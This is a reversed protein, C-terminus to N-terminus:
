PDAACLGDRIDGPVPLPSFVIQPSYAADVTANVNLRSTVDAGFDANGFYSAAPFPDDTFYYRTDASGGSSFTIRDTRKSYELSAWRAAM